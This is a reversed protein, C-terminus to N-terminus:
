RAPNRLCAYGSIVSEGRTSYELVVADCGDDAVAYDGGYVVDSV